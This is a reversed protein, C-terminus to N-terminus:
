LVADKAHSKPHVFRCETCNDYMRACDALRTGVKRLLDASEAEHLLDTVPKESLQYGGAIRHCFYAPLRHYYFETRLGATVCGSGQRPVYPAVYRCPM